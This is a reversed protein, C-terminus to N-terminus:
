VRQLNSPEPSGAGGVEKRGGREEEEGRGGGEALWVRHAVRHASHIQHSQVINASGAKREEERRGGEKTRGGGERRREGEEIKFM